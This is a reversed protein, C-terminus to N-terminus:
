LRFIADEPINLRTSRTRASTESSNLAEMMLTVLIPLSPVFNAKVLLRSKIEEFRADGTLEDIRTVRIISASLDESVETRVLAVRRLM